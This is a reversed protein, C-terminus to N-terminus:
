WRWFNSPFNKMVDRSFKLKRGKEIFQSSASPERTIKVVTSKGGLVRHISTKSDRFLWIKSPRFTSVNERIQQHCFLSLCFM